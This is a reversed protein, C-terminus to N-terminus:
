RCGRRKEDGFLPQCDRKFILDLHGVLCNATYKIMEATKTNTRVKEVEPFCSYLAELAKLSKEDIAGMVIRDPAMFDSVAEGERLFEPNMGLGFGSGAKKGSASELIPLVVEDTTGPVVTSKVVVVHYGDKNRLASGIEQSVERIYTLDIKDGRYPTGVTILSLDTEIVASRLDTVASFNKGIHKTLLDGLGPEYIPSHGRNIQDVKASISISM